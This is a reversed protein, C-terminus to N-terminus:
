ASCGIVQLTSSSTVPCQLTVSEKKLFGCCSKRYEKPFMHVASGKM